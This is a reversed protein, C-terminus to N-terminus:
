AVKPTQDRFGMMEPPFLRGRKYLMILQPSIGLLLLHRGYLTIRLLQLGPQPPFKEVTEVANEDRCQETSCISVNKHQPPLTQHQLVKRGNEKGTNMQRREMVRILM